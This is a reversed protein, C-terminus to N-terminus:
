PLARPPPGFCAMFSNGRRRRGGRAWGGRPLLYMARRISNNEPQSLSRSREERWKGVTRIHPGVQAAVTCYWTLARRFEAATQISLGLYEFGRTMMGITPQPNGGELRMSVDDGKVVHSASRSRSLPAIGSLSVQIPDQISRKGVVYVFGHAVRGAGRASVWYHPVARGALEDRRWANEACAEPGVTKTTSLSRFMSDRELSRGFIGTEFLRNGSVAFTPDGLRTHAPHQGAYEPAWTSLGMMGPGTTREFSVLAPSYTGTAVEPADNPKGLPTSDVLLKRVVYEAEFMEEAARGRRNGMTVNAPATQRNRKQLAPGDRLGCHAEEVLRAPVAPVPPPAVESLLAVLLVPRALRAAELEDIVRYALGLVALQALVDLLLPALVVLQVAIDRSPRPLRVAAGRYLLGVPVQDLDLLGDVVHRFSTMKYRKKRTPNKKRRRKKQSNIPTSYLQNQAVPVFSRTANPMVSSIALIFAAVDAQAWQQFRANPYFNSVYDIPSLNRIRLADIASLICIEHPSTCGLGMRGYALRSLQAPKNNNNSSNYATKTYPWPGFVLALSIQHESMGKTVM